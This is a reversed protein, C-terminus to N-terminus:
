VFWFRNFETDFNWLRPGHVATSKSCIGTLFSFITFNNLTRTFHIRNTDNVATYNLASQPLLGYKVKYMFIATQYNNINVLKLLNLCFFLPSSAARYSSGSCLRVKRKKLVVLKNLTSKDAAGWVFNCHVLYPYILTNCLMLLVRSPLISHVRSIIEIGRPIKLRLYSVHKYWTLRKDLFVGLFKSESVEDIVIGGLSAPPRVNTAPM